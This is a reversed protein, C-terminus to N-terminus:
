PTVVAGDALRTVNMTGIQIANVSAPLGADIKTVFATRFTEEPSGSGTIPVSYLHQFGWLTYKGNRVNDKSYFVGDYSLAKGGGAIATNSDNPGPYSIAGGPGEASTSTGNLNTAVLSGSSFGVADDVWNGNVARRQAINPLIGLSIEALTTIRTGSGNDRGM